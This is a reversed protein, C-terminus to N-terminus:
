SLSNEFVDVGRSTLVDFRGDDRKKVAVSLDYRDQRNFYLGPHGPVPQFDVGDIQIGTDIPHYSEFADNGDDDLEGKEPPPPMPVELKLDGELM